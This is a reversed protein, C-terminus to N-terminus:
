KPISCKIAESAADFNIDEYITVNTYTDLYSRFMNVNFLIKISNMNVLPYAIIYFDSGRNYINTLSTYTTVWSDSLEDTDKYTFTQDYNLYSVNESQSLYFRVGAYTNTRNLLYVKLTLPISNDWQWYTTDITATIGDLIYEPVAMLAFNKYDADMGGIFRQNTLTQQNYGKKHVQLQYNGSVVNNITYNGDIDTKVTQLPTSGSITVETGSMDYITSYMNYLHVNGNITGSPLDYADETTCNSFIFILFISLIYNKTHLLRKM